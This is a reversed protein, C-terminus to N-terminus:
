RDRNNRRLGFLGLLGLLGLLGWKGTDDTKYQMDGAPKDKQASPGPEIAPNSSAPANAATTSKTSDATPSQARLTNCNIILTAIICLKAFRKM